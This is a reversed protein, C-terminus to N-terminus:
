NCGGLRRPSPPCDLIWAQVSSGAGRRPKFVALATAITLAAVDPTMVLSAWGRSGANRRHLQLSARAAISAAPHVM